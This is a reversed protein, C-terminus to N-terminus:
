PAPVRDSPILYHYAGTTETSACDDPFQAAAEDTPDAVEDGHAVLAHTGDDDIPVVSIELEATVEYADELIVEPEGAEISASSYCPGVLEGAAIVQGDDWELELVMPDSDEGQPVTLTADCDDEGCSGEGEVRDEFVRWDYVEVEDYGEVSYVERSDVYEDVLEVGDAPGEDFTDQPVLAIDYTVTEEEVETSCEPNARGADNLTYTEVKTGVLVPGDWRLETHDVEDMTTYDGAIPDGDAGRCNAYPGLDEEFSWAEEDDDYELTVDEPPDGEPPPFEAPDYSGDEGAGSLELDCPEDGDCTPELHWLRTTALGQTNAAESADTQWRLLLFDGEPNAPAAEETTTPAEDADDPQDTSASGGDDGGCAAALLLFALLPGIFLPRRQMRCTDPLDAGARM